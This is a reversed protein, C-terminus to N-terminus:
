AARVQGSAVEFLRRPAPLRQAWAPHATTVLAQGRVVLQRCLEHARDEDLESDLDDLLIVPTEGREQRYLEATALTLALLLSRAQGSSADATADRGDIELRVPDRQPGALTRRVRLEDRRRIELEAALAARRAAEAAPAGPDGPITVSYREGVARYGQELRANLKDVYVGRRLRLRAGLAAYPEDWADLGRGGAELAANRQRLAREFERLTQRYAPWLASASRDLFQRRERAPGHVIRLRDTAYVVAELRGQYDRPTVERGDV